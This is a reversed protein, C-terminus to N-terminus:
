KNDANNEELYHNPVYSYKDHNSPNIIKGCKDCPMPIFGMALTLVEKDFNSCSECLLLSTKEM